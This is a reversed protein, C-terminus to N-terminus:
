KASKVRGDSDLDFFQGTVKEPTTVALRPGEGRKGSAQDSALLLKMKVADLGLWASQRSPGSANYTSDAGGFGVGVVEYMDPVSTFRDETVSLLTAGTFWYFSMGAQVPVGAKRLAAVLTDVGPFGAPGAGLEAKQLVFGKIARLQGPRTAPGVFPTAAAPKFADTYLGEFATTPGVSPVPAAVVAPDHPPLPPATVTPATGDKLLQVPVLHDADCLGAANAICVMGPIRDIGRSLGPTELPVFATAGLNPAVDTPPLASRKPLQCGTLTGAVALAALLARAQSRM